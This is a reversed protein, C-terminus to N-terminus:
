RHGARASLRIEDEVTSNSSDLLGAIEQLEDRCKRRKAPSKSQWAPVLALAKAYADSALLRVNVSLPIDRQAATVENAALNELAVPWRELADAILATERSALRLRVTATLLNIMLQRPKSADLARLEEYAEGMAAVFRAVAELERNERVQRRQLANTFFVVGLAVLAGVLAGIAGNWFAVWTGCSVGLADGCIINM